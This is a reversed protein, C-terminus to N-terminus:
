RVLNGYATLATGFALFALGVFFALETYFVTKKM